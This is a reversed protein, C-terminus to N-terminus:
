SVRRPFLSIQQEAGRRGCCGRWRLEFMKHLSPFNTGELNWHFNWTELLLGFEDSIITNLTKVRKEM